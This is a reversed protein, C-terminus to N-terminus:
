IPRTRCSAMDPWILTPAADPPRATVMAPVSPVRVNDPKDFPAMAALEVSATVPACSCAVLWVTAVLAADIPAVVVRTAARSVPMVASFPVTVESCPTTVPWPWCIAVM